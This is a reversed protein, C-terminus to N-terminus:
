LSHPGLQRHLRRGALTVLAMTACALPPLMSWTKVRRGSWKRAEGCGAEGCSALVTVGTASAPAAEEWPHFKLSQGTVGLRVEMGSRRPAQAATCMEELTQHEHVPVSGASSLQVRVTSTERPLSLRKKRSRSLFRRWSPPLNVDVEIHSYGARRVCAPHALLGPALSVPCNPIVPYAGTPEFGGQYYHKQVYEATMQLGTELPIPDKPSFICRLKEHSAYAEAVEKRKELYVIPHAPKGM